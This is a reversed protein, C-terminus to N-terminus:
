VKTATISKSKKIAIEYVSNKNGTDRVNVVVDYIGNDTNLQNTFYHWQKVKKHQISNKGIEEKSKDYKSSEVINPIQKYNELKYNYGSFDSKGKAYVNKDATFKDFEAIIEDDKMKLKVPNLNKIFSHIEKLKISKIKKLVNVLDNISKIKEISIGSENPTTNKVIPEEGNLKRKINEPSESEKKEQEILEYYKKIATDKSMGEIDIHKGKLFGFVFRVFKDGEEM